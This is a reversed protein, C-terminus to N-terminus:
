LWISLPGFYLQYIDYFVVPSLFLILLRMFFLQHVLLLSQVGEIKVPLSTLTIHVMFMLYALLKLAQQQHVLNNIMDLEVLDMIDATLAVIVRMDVLLYEM